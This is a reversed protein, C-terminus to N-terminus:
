PKEAKIVLFFPIRSERDFFDVKTAPYPEEFALLQFGSQIVTNVYTSLTRHFFSFKAPFGEGSRTKWRIKFEKERYYNDVKFYHGKRRGSSVDKAGIVWQGPGYVNFAPHVVSFVLFGGPRLVRNFELLSAELCDVNLLVLNCLVIDFYGNELQELQCIDGITFSIDFGKSRRRAENILTPSIDVGTVEADKQAYHRSLYGEGCGADLIRRGQVDGMLVEICPNLIEQHHPTGKGNILQSYAEANAQWQSRFRTTM